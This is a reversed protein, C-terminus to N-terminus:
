PRDKAKAACRKCCQEEYAYRTAADPYCNVAERVRGCLTSGNDPIHVVYHKAEVGGRKSMGKSYPVRDATQLEYAFSTRM